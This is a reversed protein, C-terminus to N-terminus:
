QCTGTVTTVASMTVTCSGTGSCGGGSWGTFNSGGADAAPPPGRRGRRRGRRHPQFRGRAEGDVDSGDRERLEDRVFDGAPSSTGTGGGAGAKSVTLAFTPVDFTATVTTVASMTMSCAGTGSCGGGGWGSFTSGTAPTVTLTVATGGPYSASCSTGCTIGAPTSTVTGSGTGTKSTTLTFTPGDFTATLTVTGSMTVTCTGTGSCGGGSWGSFRSGTDPTATLTVVTGSNYNASCTPGCTIGSPSSTVTGSGTGARVVALGSTQPTTGCAENSYASDGAANFAKLRYCYTTASAPGSDHLLRREPECHLKRLRERRIPSGSLKSAM